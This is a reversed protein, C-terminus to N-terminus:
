FTNEFMSNDKVWAATFSVPLLFDDKTMPRSFRHLVEILANGSQMNIKSSGGSIMVYISSNSLIARSTETIKEPNDSKNMVDNIAAKLKSLSQMSEVLVVAKRGFTVSNLYILNSVDYGEQVKNLISGDDPLDMMISFVSQELHVVVMNQKSKESAPLGFFETPNIKQGFLANLDNYTDIERLMHSFRINQKPIKNEKILGEVVKLMNDHSPVFKQSMVPLNFSITTPKLPVDLFQHIDDNINEARIVAGIFTKEPNKATFHNFAQQAHASAGAFFFCSLSIAFEKM